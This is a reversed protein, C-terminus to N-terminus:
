DTGQVVCKVAWGDDTGDDDQCQLAVPYYRRHAEAVVDAVGQEVEQRRRVHGVSFTGDSAKTRVM